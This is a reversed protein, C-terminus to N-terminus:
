EQRRIPGIWRPVTAAYSRFEQGFKAILYKEEPAILIYHCGVLSPILLVLEWLLNFVLSIGILICVVGLYLPNRSFSFIGTAVINTTPVGPDTHQGHRAFERRALFILITGGIFLAVGGVIVVPTLFGRSFGLPVILQLVISLLFPVGFVAESIQWWRDHTTDKPMGM